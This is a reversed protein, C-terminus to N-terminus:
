LAAGLWPFAGEVAPAARRLAERVEARASARLAAAIGRMAANAEEPTLDLDLESDRSAALDALLGVLAAAPDAGAAASAADRAGDLDGGALRAVALWRGPRGALVELALARDGARLAGEGAASALEDGDGHRARHAAVFARIGEPGSRAAALTVAALLAEPDQPAHDLGEEVRAAAEQLAGRAIALRALGLLPRVTALQINSTVPALARASEFAEAAEGARGLRELLEGRRLRLAAAPQTGPSREDLWALAAAPGLPLGEAVLVLLEGAHPTAALRDPAAEVAARARSAAAVWLDRDGWFRAQELLKLHSYLDHPDEDLCRVLLAVDRAKKDKARARARVYGLHDVPGELHVLRRGTVRLHAQVGESPDEHIAHRFRIAPDNRFLRLLRAERVHGHPLRNLLRLTAAGATPDALIARAAAVFEASAMEDPDLVCIWDGRAGDLSRNRAASFDGTWPAQIVTAGAEELLRPTADTSGTDVVRLEDWLGRARRLFEPLLEEEDKVIM